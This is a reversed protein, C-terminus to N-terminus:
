GTFGRGAEGEISHMPKSGTSNLRKLYLTSNWVGFPEWGAALLVAERDSHLSAWNIEWVLDPKPEMGKRMGSVGRWGGEDGVM